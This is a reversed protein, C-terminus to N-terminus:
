DHRVVRLRDVLKWPTVVQSKEYMWVDGIGEENLKENHTKHETVKDM